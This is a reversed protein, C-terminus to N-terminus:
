RSRGLALAVPPPPPYACPCARPPLGRGERWLRGVPESGRQRVGGAAVGGAAGGRSARGSAQSNFEVSHANTLLWRHGEPSVVMFGSSSSTYQRKRQWPLSYNPECHTCYVKAVADM